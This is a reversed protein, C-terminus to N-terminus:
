RLLADDLFSTVHQEWEQPRTALGQTHGAGPVVWITVTSPAARRVADAADEEDPKQGATILLVPRPAARRVSTALTPPSTAPTLLDTLDCTLAHLAQTFSGRAGYKEPLWSWDGAVRNTAGEAVVTRLRPDSGLAGLAQEGGMSEGVAAVRGDRVDPRGLLFTVAGHLDDDGYWGLEMARGASRGHGRADYLLVGYGHRALVQAQALVATRTSHAGHLLVVAAGTGSPVYWGALRTGDAAPFTVDSAALGYDAPRAGGLRTPPPVAALFAITGSYVLPVTVLVVFLLLVARWWGQSARVLGAVGAILLVLGGVLAILGLLAVPVWSGAVAWAVGLGLGVPLLIV